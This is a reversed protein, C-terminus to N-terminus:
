KGSPNSDNLSKVSLKYLQQKKTYDVDLDPSEGGYHYLADHLPDAWIVPNNVSPLVLHDIEAIQLTQNTWATDLPIALTVNAIM